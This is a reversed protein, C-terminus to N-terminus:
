IEAIDTVSVVRGLKHTQAEQFFTAMKWYLYLIPFDLTAKQSISKRSISFSFLSEPYIQNPLNQVMDSSIKMSCLSQFKSAHSVSLFSGIRKGVLFKRHYDIELWDLGIKVRTLNRWLKRKYYSQSSSHKKQLNLWLSNCPPISTNRM